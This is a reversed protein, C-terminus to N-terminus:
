GHEIRVILPLRPARGQLHLARECSLSVFCDVIRHTVPQQDREALNDISFFYVVAPHRTVPNCPNSGILIQHRLPLACVSNKQRFVPRLISFGAISSIRPNNDQIVSGKNHVGVPVKVPCERLKKRRLPTIIDSLIEAIDFLCLKLQLLNLSFRGRRVSADRRHKVIFCVRSIGRPDKGATLCHLPCERLNATCAIIDSVHFLVRSTFLALPVIQCALAVHDIGRSFPECERINYVVPLFQHRRKLWLCHSIHDPCFIIPLFLSM